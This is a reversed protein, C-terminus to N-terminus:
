DLACSIESVTEEKYCSPKCRLVFNEIQTFNTFKERFKTNEYKSNQARSIETVARGIEKPNKYLAEKYPTSIRLYACRNVTNYIQRPSHM